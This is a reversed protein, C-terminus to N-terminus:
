NRLNRIFKIDYILKQISYLILEDLEMSLEQLLINLEGILELDNIEISLEVKSKINNM